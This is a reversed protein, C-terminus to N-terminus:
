NPLGYIQALEPFVSRKRIINKWESPKTFLTSVGSFCDLWDFCINLSVKPIRKLHISSADAMGILVVCQM